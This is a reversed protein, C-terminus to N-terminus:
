GPRRRAAAGRCCSSSAQEACGYPYHLLQDITELLEGLRSNALRVTLTGRGALLEPNARALLNTAGATLRALLNERLLPAVHGVDLTTQVADTFEGGQVFRARWVWRAKGTDILEVPFEAVASGHGAVAM